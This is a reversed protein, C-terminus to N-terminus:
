ENAAEEILQALVAAAANSIEDENEDAAPRMFPRAEIHATGFELAPGYEANTFVQVKATTPTAEELVTHISNVLAGMDIAPAEGKTSAVHRGYRRGHKEAGMSVKIKGGLVVGGAMVAKGLNESAAAEGLAQLKRTLDEIGSVSGSM